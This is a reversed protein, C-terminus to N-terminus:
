RIGAAKLTRDWWALIVGSISPIEEAHHEQHHVADEIEHDLHESPTEPKPIRESIYPPVWGGVHNPDIKIGEGLTDRSM